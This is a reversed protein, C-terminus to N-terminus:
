CFNSLCRKAILDIDTLGFPRELSINVDRVDDKVSLSSQEFQKSVNAKRM